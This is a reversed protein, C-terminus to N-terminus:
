PATVPEPKKIQFVQRLYALYAEDECMNKEPSDTLKAVPQGNCRVMKIVIQLPTYGLDNTLNTGVGFAVRARDKFRKHLEVVKPFNLSDSFVLTKTKPDVRNKEYHAILREGWQVPDGSDHRAGDFLKCFYMDFDRLFADMGYVDSLAIGLDGRYERAWMEFGFVQSDRLRPGLSQCAQLYEHAMTGLPTLGHKQAYMVNSTGALKDKLQEKLTLLVEDHWLRSFRRRTGYDAIHVGEMEPDDRVLAIKERLRKRGEAYDPIPQTNRFYIENVIALVPIEFLITHLWPGKVVIEIGGSEKESREVTIYKTNLQFLGLFDVFDSKIFRFGRLYDLERERFRLTCLWAIEERIEEIYPSLDVGKNRCNFRYEVQAGPFHHLVVQMMTFKYLDTDLLSTIIM